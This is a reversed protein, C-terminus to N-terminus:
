EVLPINYSDFIVTCCDEDQWIRRGHREDRGVRRETHLQVRLDGDRTIHVGVGGIVVQLPVLVVDREATLIAV